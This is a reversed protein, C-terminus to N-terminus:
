GSAAAYALLGLIALGVTVASIVLAPNGEIGGVAIVGHVPGNAGGRVVLGDLGLKVYPNNVHVGAIGAFGDIVGGSSNAGALRLGIRWRAHLRWELQTEFGFVESSGYADLFAGVRGHEFGLGLSIRALPVVQTDQSKAIGCPPQMCTLYTTKVTDLVAMGVSITTYFPPPLPESRAPAPAAVPVAPAVAPRADPTNAELDVPIEAAAVRAMATLVVVIAARM